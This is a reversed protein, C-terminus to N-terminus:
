RGPLFRGNDVNTGSFNGAKKIAEYGDLRGHGYNIDKGQPGWDKATTYLMNEIQAPTLSQTILM